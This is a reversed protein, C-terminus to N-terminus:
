DPSQREGGAGIMRWAFGSSAASLGACILMILRFGFVFARDILIRLTAAANSDVGPPVTLAALRIENSQVSQIAEAPLNL